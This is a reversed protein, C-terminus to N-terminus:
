QDSSFLKDLVQGVQSRRDFYRGVLLGLIICGILILTHWFGLFHFLIGMIFGVLVGMVTRPRHLIWTIIGESIINWRSRRFYPGDQM